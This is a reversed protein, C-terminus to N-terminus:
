QRLEAPLQLRAGEVLRTRLGDGTAAGSGTSSATAIGALIGATTSGAVFQRRSISPRNDRQTM